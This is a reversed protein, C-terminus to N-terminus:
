DELDEVEYAVERIMDEVDALKSAVADLKMSLSLHKGFDVEKFLM